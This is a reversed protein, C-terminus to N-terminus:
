LVSFLLSCSAFQDRNLYACSEEGGKKKRFLNGIKKLFGKNEKHAAKDNDKKNGFLWEFLKFDEKFPDCDLEDLLHDPPNEFRAATIERFSADRNMKQMFLGYIPLATAAGQGLATSRFHISPYEGGVWIGVTLEPITAIFWGDANNQTTGTKGAIDNKLNYVSRLSAATGQNVVGALMELMLMSTEPSLAQVAKPVPQKWLVNGDSDEIYDIIFPTQYAGKNALTAYAGTMEVLSIGPTGLAISPVSPIDSEIGMLRAIRITEEIGADEIIKVSVTNVSHILGGEMSYKGDYKDDANSPRWGNKDEVFIEQEAKIYDCPSLGQELATAYVIPKFTSGVQRKAQRGAHDFKFYNHDIGGVWALIAGSNPHIAVFGANLFKLFYKISDIVSFHKRSPVPGRLFM